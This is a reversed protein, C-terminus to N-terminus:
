TAFPTWCNWQILGACLFYICFRKSCETHIILMIHKVISNGGRCTAGYSQRSVPLSHVTTCVSQKFYTNQFFFFSTVKLKVGMIRFLLSIELLHDFCCGKEHCSLLLWTMVVVAHLVPLSRVNLFLASQRKKKKKKSLSNNNMESTLVSLYACQLTVVAADSEVTECCNNEAKRLVTM